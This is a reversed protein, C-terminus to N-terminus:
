GGRQQDAIAAAVQSRASTRAAKVCERVERGQIRTGTRSRNAACVARAATEIRQDLLRQGEPTALDLGAISVNRSAESTDALAPSAILALSAAAAAFVTKM